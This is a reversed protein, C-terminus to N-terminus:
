KGLNFKDHLARVALEMHERKILCWINTYSDGSQLIPINQEQLAEVVQAMIGPIGTMAAGVVAVKACDLEIKTDVDMQELIKKTKELNQNSVTFIIREPQVNIFDVSINADALTKFIKLEMDLKNATEPPIVRVQSIGSMHAIGTIVSDRIVNVAGHAYRGTILTGPSNSTTSRVRLPIGGQMAIEVARPHIVKAGERSMQCLENYSVSDLLRANDVIRPDATMVGDVDTFIDVLEANLAVGLASATTDSGGRGLTTLEGEKSTGQFGAVVPVINQALCESIKEPNVYIIHANGYNGDTIIGAQEGSFFRAPIGQRCLQCTLLVGSILEGCSMILDLERLPPDPNVEKVLSILTDTAYPDHQRGMASVVVVVDHNEAKATSILDCVRSRLEATALSSGGFKQVIIGM